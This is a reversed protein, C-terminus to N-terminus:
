YLATYTESNTLAIGNWRDMKSINFNGFGKLLDGNKHINYISVLM